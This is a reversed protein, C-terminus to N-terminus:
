CSGIRYWETVSRVGIKVTRPLGKAPNGRRRFRCVPLKSLKSLYGVLGIITVTLMLTIPGTGWGLGSAAGTPAAFWDAFSAGLPRTVTYAFWFAAIANLRFWHHAVLPMAIVVAFIVGSPLYGLDTTKATM